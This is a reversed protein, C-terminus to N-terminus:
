AAMIGLGIRGELYGAILGLLTGGFLGVAVAVLASGISIRGGNVVRAFIDRGVEDTGFWHEISPGQFRIVVHQQAASRDPEARCDGGGGPDALDGDGVGALRNRRFREWLSPGRRVEPM